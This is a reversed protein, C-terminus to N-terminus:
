EYFKKIKNKIKNYERKSKKEDISYHYGGCKSYRRRSNSFMDMGICSNLGDFDTQLKQADIISIHSLGRNYTRWRGPSLRKMNKSIKRIERIANDYERKKM